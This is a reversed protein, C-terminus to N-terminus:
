APLMIEVSIRFRGYKEEILEFIVASITKV